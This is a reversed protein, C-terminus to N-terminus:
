DEHETPSFDYVCLYVDIWVHQDWFHSAWKVTCVYICVGEYLYIWSTSFEIQVCLYVISMCLTYLYIRSLSFTSLTCAYVDIICCQVLLDRFHFVCWITCIFVCRYETHVLLDVIHFVWKILTTNYVYICMKYVKVNDYIPGVQLDQFHFVWVWGHLFDKFNFVGVCRGM